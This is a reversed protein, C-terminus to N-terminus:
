GPGPTGDRPGECRPNGLLPTLMQQLGKVLFNTEKDRELLAAIQGDKTNIQDRLFDIEGGLREVTQELQAVAPAPSTPGAAVPRSVSVHAGPAQRPQDDQLDPGLHTWPQPSPAAPHSEQGAVAIASPRPQDRFPARTDLARLEEIQAIHRAVSQPAVYYKDGLATAAKMCDLHSSACYRQITRLTRPHGARAYLQAADEISLTFATDDATAAPGTMDPM